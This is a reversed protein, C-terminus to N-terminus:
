PTLIAGTPKILAISPGNHDNSDSILQVSQTPDHPYADESNPVGDADWDAASALAAPYIGELYDMTGNHNSDVIDFSFVLKLQGLNVPRYNESVPVLVNSNWPYIDTWTPLYGNAKLNQTTDYRPNLNWLRDYFPKAVMKLQGMNVPAYNDRRINALEQPSYTVGAQPKFGAVLANIASGAGGPLADLHAKARTAMWKLQGTNAISYNQPENGSILVPNSASVWWSPVYQAHLSTGIAFAIGLFILRKM